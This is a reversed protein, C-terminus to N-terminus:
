TPDAPSINIDKFIQGSGGILHLLRAYLNDLGGPESLQQCLSDIEQDSLGGNLSENILYDTVVTQMAIQRCIQQGDREGSAIQTAWDNLVDETITNTRGCAKEIQSKLQTVVIRWSEIRSESERNEHSYSKSM